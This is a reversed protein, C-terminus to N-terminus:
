AQTAETPTTANDGHFRNGDLEKGLPSVGQGDHAADDGGCGGQCREDVIKAMPPVIFNAKGDLKVCAFRIHVDVAKAADNGRSLDCVDALDGDGHGSKFDHLLRECLTENDLLSRIRAIEEILPCRDFLACNDRCLLAADGDRLPYRKADFPGFAAFVRKAYGDHLEVLCAGCPLLALERTGMRPLPDIGGITLPEMVKSTKGFM